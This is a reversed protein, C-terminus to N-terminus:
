YFLVVAAAFFSLSKKKLIILMWNFVIKEDSEGDNQCYIKLVIFMKFIIM